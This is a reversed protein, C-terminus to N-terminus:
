WTLTHQSKSYEMMKGVKLKKEYIRRRSADSFKIEVGEEILMECIASIDDLEHALREVNTYDQRPEIENEGFRIVKSARHIVEACEESLLTFLHEKKNM